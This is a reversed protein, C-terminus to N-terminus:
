QVSPARMTEAITLKTFTRPAYIFWGPVAGFGRSNAQKGVGWLETEVQTLSVVAVLM